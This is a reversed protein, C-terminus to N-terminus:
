SIVFDSWKLESVKLKVIKYIEKDEMDDCTINLKEALNNVGSYNGIKDMFQLHTIFYGITFYYDETTIIEIKIKIGEFEDVELSIVNVIYDNFVLYTNFLAKVEEINIVKGDALQLSKFLTYQEGSIKYLFPICRFLNKSNTYTDAGYLKWMKRSLRNTKNNYENLLESYKYDTNTKYSFPLRFLALPRLVHDSYICQRDIEFIIDNINSFRNLKLIIRPTNYRWFGVEGNKRSYLIGALEDTALEFEIRKNQRLLWYILNELQFPINRAKSLNYYDYPRYKCRELRPIWHDIDTM